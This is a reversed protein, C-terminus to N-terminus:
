ATGNNKLKIANLAVHNYIKSKRHHKEVPLLHALHIVDPYHAFFLGNTTPSM